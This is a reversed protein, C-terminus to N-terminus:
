RSGIGLRTEEARLAAAFAANEPKALETDFEDPTLRRARGDMSLVTRVGAVHCDAYSCAILAGTNLDPDAWGSEPPLYFFDCERGNDKLWSMKLHRPSLLRSRVLTQLDPPFDPGGGRHIASDNAYVQVAQGIANLQSLSVGQKALDRAKNLSPLLITMLLPVAIIAAGLTPLWALIAKGFSLKAMWSIMAWTILLGAGPTVLMRIYVAVQGRDASAIGGLVGGAVTGCIVAAVYVGISRWYTAREGKVIFRWGVFFLSGGGFVGIVLALVLPILQWTEFVNSMATM